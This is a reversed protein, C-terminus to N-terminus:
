PLQRAARFAKITGTIIDLSFDMGAATGAAEGYKRTAQRMPGCELLLGAGESAGIIKLTLNKQLQIEGEKGPATTLGAKALYRLLGRDLLTEAFAQSAMSYARPDEILQAGGFHVGAEDVWDEADFHVAIITSKAATFARLVNDGNDYKDWINDKTVLGSSPGAEAKAPDFFADPMDEVNHVSVTLGQAAIKGALRAIVQDTYVREIGDGGSTGESYHGPYTHDSVLLVQSPKKPDAPPPTVTVIAKYARTETGNTVTYTVPKTFDQAVGSAPAVAIGKAGKTSLTITPVLAKVDTGNPVTVNISRDAESVYVRANLPAAGFTFGTILPKIASVLYKRTTGNEATVTYEVPKSLDVAAGSAPKVTAKADFLKLTPVIKAIDAGEPLLVTVTKATESVNVSAGAVDFSAIAKADSKAAPAAAAAQGALPLAMALSLAAVLALSNKTGARQM